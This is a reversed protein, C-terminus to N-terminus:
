RRDDSFAIEDSGPTPLAQVIAVGDDETAVINEDAEADVLNGEADTLRQM